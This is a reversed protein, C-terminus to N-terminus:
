SNGPAPAAARQRAAVEDIKAGLGLPHSQALDRAIEEVIYRAFASAGEGGSQTFSKELGAHSLMEAWLLQEFRLAAESREPPAQAVPAAQTRLARAPQTDPPEPWKIPVSEIM